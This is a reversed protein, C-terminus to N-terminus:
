IILERSHGEDKVKNSVSVFEQVTEFPTGSSFRNGNRSMDVNDFANSASFGAGVSPNVSSSGATSYIPQHAQQPHFPPAASASAAQQGYYGGSSASNETSGYNFNYENSGSGGNYM